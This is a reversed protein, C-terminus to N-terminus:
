APTSTPVATESEITGPTQTWVVTTTRDVLYPSEDIITHYVREITLTPADRRAPSAMATVIVGVFFVTRALKSMM